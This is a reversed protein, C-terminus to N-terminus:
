GRRRLIEVLLAAVVCSRAAVPLRLARLRGLVPQRAGPVPLGQRREPQLRPVLDRRARELRDQLAM